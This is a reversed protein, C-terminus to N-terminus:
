SPPDQNILCLVDGDVVRFDELRATDPMEVAEGERIVALGYRGAALQNHAVFHRVASQVTEDVGDDGDFDFDHGIGAPTRIRVTM